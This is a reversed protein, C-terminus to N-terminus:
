DGRVFLNIKFYQSLQLCVCEIWTAASLAIPQNIEIFIHYIFQNLDHTWQMFAKGDLERTSRSIHAAVVVIFRVQRRPRCNGCQVFQAAINKMLSSSCIYMHVKCNILHLKCNVLEVRKSQMRQRQMLMSM